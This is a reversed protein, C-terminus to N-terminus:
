HTCIWGPSKAGAPLVCKSNGEAVLALTIPFPLLGDQVPRKVAFKPIFAQVSLDEVAQLFRLNDDLLPPLVVVGASRM